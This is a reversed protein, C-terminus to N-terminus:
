IHQDQALLSALLAIVSEPAYPRHMVPFGAAENAQEAADGILVIKARRAALASALETQAFVAPDANVVALTVADSAHVLPEADDLSTAIRVEAHIDFDSISIALDQAIVGFPEIVLYTRRSDM